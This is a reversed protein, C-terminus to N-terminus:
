TCDSRARSQREVPEYAPSAPGPRADQREGPHKGEAADVRKQRGDEAVVIAVAVVTILGGLVTIPGVAEGAILAGLLVAVVPNVYAYTSVLSVPAVGLLWSYASFAVLSGFVVLYALASVSTATIESPDFSEGRLAGAVVLGLSGGTMQLVLNLLKDDPLSVRTAVYSGVSWSVSAVVVMVAPVLAVGEPRAGPLLLVAVGAFGVTVGLVTRLAPRDRNMARLVVVWLPVAAILLAALSSPLEREEAITVLGNGGLLLLVGIGMSAGVQRRSARLASRGRRVLLYLLVLAGAVAFRVSASLLSPLSEVVYVIALYTSGWFVYVLGLATWVKWAAPPM